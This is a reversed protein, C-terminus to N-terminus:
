IYQRVLSITTTETWLDFSTYYNTLIRSKLCVRFIRYKPAVIEAGSHSHFFRVKKLSVIHPQFAAKKVMTYTNQCFFNFIGTLQHFLVLQSSYNLGMVLSICCRRANVLFACAETTYNSDMLRWNECIQWLWKM